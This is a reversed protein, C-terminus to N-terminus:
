VSISVEISFEGANFYYVYVFLPFKSRNVVTVGYYPRTDNIIAERVGDECITYVCTKDPDFDDPRWHSGSRLLDVSGPKKKYTDHLGGNKETILPHMEVDFQLDERVKCHPNFRYLHFNFKAVMGLADVDNTLPRPLIIKPQSAKFRIALPDCKQLVYFDGERYSRLHANKRHGREFGATTADRPSALTLSTGCWVKMCKISWTQIAAVPHQIRGLAEKTVLACLKATIGRVRTRTAEVETPVLPVDIIGGLFAEGDGHPRRHHYVFRTDM